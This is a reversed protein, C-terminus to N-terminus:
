NSTIASGASGERRWISLAPAGVALAGLSAPETPAAPSAADPQGVSSDVQEKTQGAIIAKNPITEYAYGTLVATLPVRQVRASVSLRAWGYHTEGNVKFRLGLYRGSVNLWSGYSVPNSPGYFVSAMLASKHNFSNGAQIRAGRTLAKALRIFGNHSYRAEVANGKGPKEFLTFFATSDGMNTTNLITFDTVGDHNLDLKYSENVGIRIHAPTYVIRAECPEVLALLSVGAASAALSYMNLQHHVSDSLKSPIHSSGSSRKM